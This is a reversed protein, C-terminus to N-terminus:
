ISAIRLSELVDEVSGPRSQTMLVEKISLVSGDRARMRKRESEPLLGVVNADSPGNIM